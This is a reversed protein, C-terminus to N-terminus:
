KIIIRGGTGRDEFQDRERPNGWSLRTYMKGRGWYNSCAGGIENKEIQDGSYYKLPTCNMLSRM